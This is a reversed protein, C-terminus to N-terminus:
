PHEVLETVQRIHIEQAIGIDCGEVLSEAHFRDPPHHQPPRHALEALAPAGGALPNGNVLPM